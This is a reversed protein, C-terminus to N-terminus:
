LEGGCHFLKNQGPYDLIHMCVDIKMKFEENKYGDFCLSNNILLIEEVLLEMYPDLNKPESKGPIIGALLISGPLNRIHRPLNLITLMIPWMSYSVKEKCFPNTGDTCLSLSIGRPDGHFIGSVDYRSKWTDCQHLDEVVTRVDQGHHLQLLESIIKNGFMRKLRPALPIYKFSKRAISSSTQYRHENCVPCNTLDKADKRYLICDNICCDYQQVPVLMEKIATRAKIYSNPLKNDVPLLFSNLLYLLRNFAEKSIGPYSCFWNFLIALSQSVSLESSEYLPSSDGDGFVDHDMFEQFPEEINIFHEYNLEEYSSSSDISEHESDSVSSASSSSNHGESM